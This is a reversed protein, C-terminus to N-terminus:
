IEFSIFGKEKNSFTYLKKVGAAKLRSIGLNYLLDLMELNHTDSSMTFKIGKDNAMKIIENSPYLSRVGHKYGGGTNLELIADIEKIKDLVDSVLDKYWKSEEDFFIGDINNKKILDIHGAVEPKLECLNNYYNEYYDMVFKRADNDYSRKLSKRFTSCLEDVPEMIGNANTLHVSGVVYDLRDRISSIDSMLYGSEGYRESEIGAFIEIKDKYKEKYENIKDVYENYKEPKLSHNEYNYTCVHDTIGFHTFGRNIAEIILTEMEDKGDSLNTHNHLSVKYM